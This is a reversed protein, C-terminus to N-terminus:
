NGYCYIDKNQAQLSCCQTITQYTTVMKKGWRAEQNALGTVMVLKEDRIYGVLNEVKNM